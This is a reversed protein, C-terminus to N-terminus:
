LSGCPMIIVKPPDATIDKCILNENQIEIRFTRGENKEFGMVNIHGKSFGGTLKRDLDVIKGTCLIKGAAHQVIAELPSQKLKRARLVMQGLYWARSLSHQITMTPDLIEEKHFPKLILAAVCRCVFPALRGNETKLTSNRINGHLASSNNHTGLTDFVLGMDICIDRFCNELRKPTGVHLAVARRGNVDSLFAPYPTM